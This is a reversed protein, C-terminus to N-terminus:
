SKRLPSAAKRLGRWVMAKARDATPHRGPTAVPLKVRELQSNMRYLSVVDELGKTYMACSLSIAVPDFTKV